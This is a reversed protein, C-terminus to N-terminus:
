DSESGADTLAEISCKEKTYGAQCQCTCQSGLGGDNASCTPKVKVTVVGTSEQAGVEKARIELEYIRGVVDITEYNPCLYLHVVERISTYDSMSAGPEDPAPIMTSEVYRDAAILGTQPDTLKGELEVTSTDLNKIRAGVFIVFGGQPASQLHAEDGDQLLTFASIRPDAEVASVVLPGSDIAAEPEAATQKHEANNSCAFVACTVAIAEARSASVTIMTSRRDDTALEHNLRTRDESRFGRSRTSAVHSKVDYGRPSPSILRARAGIALITARSKARPAIKNVSKTTPSAEPM